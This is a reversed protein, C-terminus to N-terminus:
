TSLALWPGPATPLAALFDKESDVWFRADPIGPIIAVAQDDAPFDPPPPQESQKAPEAAPNKEVYNACPRPNSKELVPQACRATLSRPNKGQQASAPDFGSLPALTVLSAILVATLLRM